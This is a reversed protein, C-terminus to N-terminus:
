KPLRARHLVMGGILQVDFHRMNVARTGAERVVAFAEPLIDDLVQKEATKREEADTIGEVAAAVRAKFEQTKARLEDDSLRQVAPEFANITQVLPALRKVARENSTGFVKTLASGIM